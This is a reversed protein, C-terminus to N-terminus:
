PYYFIAGITFGAEYDKKILNPRWFDVIFVVINNSLGLICYFLQVFHGAKKNETNELEIWPL